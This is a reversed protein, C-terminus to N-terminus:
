NLRLNVLNLTTTKYHVQLIRTNRYTIEGYTVGTTNQLLIDKIGHHKTTLYLLVPYEVRLLKQIEFDFIYLIKNRKLEQFFSTFDALISFDHNDYDTTRNTLYIETTHTNLKHLPFVQSKQLGFSFLNGNAPVLNRNIKLQTSSIDPTRPLYKVICDCWDFSGLWDDGMILIDARYKNIYDNKEEMSEELFVYDVFELKKVNNLRTEEDDIPLCAKKTLTFWDCSVGVVLRDGYKSARELINYHGIHFLDFTGFTIVIM